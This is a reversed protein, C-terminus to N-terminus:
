VITRRLDNEIENIIIIMREYTLGISEFYASERLTIDRIDTTSYYIFEKLNKDFFLKEFSKGIEISKNLAQNFSLHQFLRKIKIQNYYKSIINKYMRLIVLIDIFPLSHNSNQLDYMRDYVSLSFNPNDITPLKTILSFGYDLLVINDDRIMINDGKIDNHVLGFTNYLYQLLEFLQKIYNIFQLLNPITESRFLNYLTNGQIQEMIVSPHTGIMKISYIKPINIKFRIDSLHYIIYQILAEKYVNFIYLPNSNTNRIIKVIIPVNSNLLINRLKNKNLSKNSFITGYAGSSLKESPNIITSVNLLYFPNGTFLRIFISGIEHETVGEKLLYKKFKKQFLRANSNNSIFLTINTLLINSNHPVNTLIEEIESM